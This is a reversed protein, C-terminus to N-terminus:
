AHIEKISVNEELMREEDDNWNDKIVLNYVKEQPKLNNAAFIIKIKYDGPLLIHSGTNPIVAIDLQFVINPNERIGFFSLNAADSKTIHGFDLHKFLHPQIKPMTIYRYHAWVLNLPLFSKVKEYSNSVKKYVETIMAEVDEMQHNGANEIRFRFYYSDYEEGTKLNRMPIKHCDPSELKISVNLKPKRFLSRIRDQFIGVVGLLLAVSVGLLSVLVAWPNNVGEAIAKLQNLAEQLFQQDM